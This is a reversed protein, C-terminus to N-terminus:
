NFLRTLDQMIVTVMLMLLLAMGIQQIVIRTKIKLPRRLAGEILHIFIHGGDLGPIPLINLFALNVSLLAMFTLFPTIGAEATQGALQAIMIPGGLDSISASGSGLMQLSYIILGFSSITQEIGLAISNPFSIDEYYVEPAIGIIGVTDIIGKAPIAYESTKIEFDLIESDRQIKFSLTTNPNSHIIKTMSTWTEISESNIELIQDGPLVGAKEAPMNEQLEFVIPVDKTEPTGNYFGLLSFVVIALLTNMLVGASLVWIKEILNKSQFEDNKNQIKTDMSEDIMGAMKVYGGLPLLAIVYETNSGKRISRKINKSLVPRWKIKGNVIKFFFINLIFGGDISTISILRPPVGVSFREVRIGVSRAAIFHGFEHITVLVGLLIIFAYFTTM